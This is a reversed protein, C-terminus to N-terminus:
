RTCILEAWEVNIVGQVEKSSMRVLSELLEM